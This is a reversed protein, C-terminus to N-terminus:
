PLKKVLKELRLIRKIFDFMCEFNPLRMKKDHYIKILFDKHEHRSLVDLTRHM